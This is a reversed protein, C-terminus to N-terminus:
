RQRGRVAGIPIRVAFSLERRITDDLTTYDFVSILTYRGIPMSIGAYAQRVRVDDGGFTAGTENLIAPNRTEGSYAGALWTVRAQQLRFKMGFQRTDLNGGASAIGDLTIGLRGGFQRTLSATVIHGLSDDINIYTDSLAITWHESALWTAGARVKSYVFDDGDIQGPGAEVRSDLVFRQGARGSIGLMALTWSSGGVDFHSLGAEFDVPARATFTRSVAVRHSNEASTAGAAQLWLDDAMAPAALSTTLCAVTLSVIRKM